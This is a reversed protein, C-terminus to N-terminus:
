EISIKSINLVKCFKALTVITINKKGDEIKSIEPQKIGIILSLDKQSLRKGLRAKRIQVGIAKLFIPATGKPRVQKQMREEMLQEFITEWWDRFESQLEVKVWYRRIQPWNEVFERRSLVSFLEKPKDCRSLFNVMVSAFKPHSPKKIIKMTENLATENLNWFYKEIKM